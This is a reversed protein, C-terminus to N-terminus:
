VTRPKTRSTGGASEARVMVSYKTNKALGHLTLVVHKTRDSSGASVPASRLVHKGHTALLRLTTSLRGPSVRLRAHVTTGHRTLALHSLQPRPLFEYAGMDTRKGATRPNGALDTRPANASAGADVTPSSALERLDGGLPDRLKARERLDSSDISVLTVGGASDDADVTVYATHDLNVMASNGGGGTRLVIDNAAAELISNFVSVQLDSGYGAFADIGIGDTGPAIADVGTLSPSSPTGDLDSVNVAIGSSAKAFCASDVLQGFVLCATGASDEAVVDVHDAESQPDVYLATTGGEHRIVLHSVTSGGAADVRQSDATFLVPAPRGPEGRITLKTGDDIVVDDIPANRSGYTGALITVKDGARAVTFVRSISCPASRPCEGRSSGHVAAYLSHSAPAAPTIRVVLAAATAMPAALCPAVVAAITAVRMRRAAIHRM